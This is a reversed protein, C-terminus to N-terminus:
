EGGGEQGDLPTATPFRSHHRETRRDHRGRPGEVGPGETAPTLLVERVPGSLTLQPAPMLASPAPAPIAPAPSVAQAPVWTGQIGSPTHGAPVTAAPPRARREALSRGAEVGVSALWSGMVGNGLALAHHGGDEGSLTQYLGYGTGLLGVPARLDVGGVKLKEPGLFGEAMSSLFLSGQTEAVHVVQTGTEMLAAKSENAKKTLNAIRTVAQSLAGQAQKDNLDKGEIAKQLATSKSAM